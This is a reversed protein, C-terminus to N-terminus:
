TTEKHKLEYQRFAEQAAEKKGLREYCEGIKRLVITREPLSKFCLEYAAVADELQGRNRLNDGMTDWCGAYSRDLSVARGLSAVGEPYQNLAFYVDALYFHYAAHTPHITVVNEFCVCADELNGEAVLLNGYFCFFAAKEESGLLAAIHEPSNLDGYWSRIDHDANKIEGAQALTKIRRCDDAVHVQFAHKLIPHHPDLKLGRALMVRFSHDDVEKFFSAHVWYSDALEYYFKRIRDHYSGDLSMAGDFCTEAPGYDSRLAFICGLAFQVEALGPQKRALNALLPMAKVYDGADFLGLAQELVLKDTEGQAAIATELSAEEHYRAMLSALLPELRELADLRVTCIYSIRDMSSILWDGYRDPDKEIMSIDHRMRESQKMGQLTLDEVLRWIDGHKDLEQQFVDIRSLRKRIDGNLDNVTRCCTGSQKANLIDKCTEQIVPDMDRISAIIKRCNELFPSVGAELTEMSPKQVGRIRRDITAAVDVDAACCTDVVRSLPMVETGDIHAGGETANIFRRDPHKGILEEFYVKMTHFSRSSIVTGGHIGPVMFKDKLIGDMRKKETLVTDAAHCTHNTYALDQGVFVIPSCGMVLAAIMNMHAVTGAGRAFPKGGVMRNMWQDIFHGSFSWFRERAPFVRPFKRNVWPMTILCIDQVQHVMHAIKEYTLEQSDISTLFDPSIDKAMLAPLVTDVAIIVAKNQAQKLVHINKDLSPGGAVILAPIGQFANELHELLYDNHILGFNTLRNETFKEGLSLITAGGVNFENSFKFVAEFLRNYENLLLYFAPISNLIYTHEVRLLPIIPELLKPVDPHEGVSLILRPDSLLSSLDVTRLATQFIGPDLEFLALKRISPREKLVNLASYGLGLGLLAVFGVADQKVTEFYTDMDARVNEHFTIPNGAGHAVVLKFYGNDGPLVQGLPPTPNEALTRWVHPFKEKLVRVNKEYVGPLIKHGPVPAAPRDGTVTETTCFRKRFADRLDPRIMDIMGVHAQVLGEWVEKLRAQDEPSSAPFNSLDGAVLGNFEASIDPHDPSIELGKALMRICTAKDVIKFYEAYSLYEESLGKCFVGIEKGMAPDHEVVKRFASRAQDVHSLLAMICGNLFLVEKDPTSTQLLPDVISKALAYKGARYYLFALEKQPHRSNEAAKGPPTLRTEESIGAIARTLATTFTALAEKQVKNILLLYDLFGRVWQGFRRPDHQFLTLEHKKRETDRLGKITIDKLLEWIGPHQKIADHDKQVMVIQKKINEPLGSFARITKNKKMVRGLAKRIGLALEESKHILAMLDACEQQVPKLRAVIKGPDIRRYSVRELTHRVDVDETLYRDIVRAMDMPTTGELQVGDFTANIYTGPCQKMILEFHQKMNLYARNSLVKEGRLGAVWITDGKEKLESAMRDDGGLLLGRAHSERNTFALDQGMFIIPSCGMLIAAMLNLHAVTGAGEIKRQGGILDCIWTDMDNDSFAWFVQDALALNPTKTNVSTKCILNVGAMADSFGAIKEYTLDLADISTVFDPKVGKAHLLPVVSDVAFLVAKGKVKELLHLNRNLSPGGSVLIAPKEGFVQHLDELLRDHHIFPLHAMQNNFFLSGRRTKTGGEVNYYNVCEFVGAKLDNYGKLDLAFAGPHSFVHITELMLTDVAPKLLDNVDVQPGVSLILRFDSLFQALDVHRLAQCFIAPNREFVAIKQINPRMQMLAKIEQGTGMGLFGVFGFFDEPVVELYHALRRKGEQPLYLHVDHGTEDRVIIDVNNDPLRRAEGVPTELYPTIYQRIHPHFKTLQTLNGALYDKPLSSTM